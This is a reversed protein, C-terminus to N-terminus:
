ELRLSITHTIGNLSVVLEHPDRSLIVTDGFDFEKHHNPCLILLNDPMECGQLRKPTIHAAEIYFQGNQKRITTQCIQCAHNRLIKLLAVTHNDRKYQRLQLTVLQSDTPRLSRLAHIIDARSLTQVAISEVDEQELENQFRPPLRAAFRAYISWMTKLTVPTRQVSQYYLIHERLARVANRLTAAPYNTSIQELFYEMSFANLTRTFGRGEMLYRFNNIYDRASNVNLGHRNVLLQAGDTLSTQGHYVHTAVLYADPVCSNPIKM